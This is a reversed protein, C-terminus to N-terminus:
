RRAPRQIAEQQPLWTGVGRHCAVSHVGSSLGLLFGGWRADRLAAGIWAACCWAARHQEKKNESLHEPGRRPSPLPTHAAGGCNTDM